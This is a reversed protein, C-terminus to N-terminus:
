VSSSSSEKSPSSKPRCYTIRYRTSECASIQHHFSLGCSEGRACPMNASRDLVIKTLVAEAHSSAVLTRAPRKGDMADSDGRVVFAHAPVAKQMELDAGVVANTATQELPIMAIREIAQDGRLRQDLIEHTTVRSRSILANPQLTSQYHGGIGGEFQRRM